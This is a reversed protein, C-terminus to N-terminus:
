KAPSRTVLPHLQLAIEITLRQQPNDLVDGLIEKIRDLRYRMTNYHIFLAEAARVSNQNQELFIRLTKLLETGNERDYSLLPGIADQCFRGLGAPSEALSIVRFLGLDEYHTVTGSPREQFVRGLQLSQEACEYAQRFEALDFAPSSIGISVTYPDNESRVRESVKSLEQVLLGKVESLQDSKLPFFVVLRPGQHWFSAQSELHRIYREALHLSSDINNQEASKVKGLLTGSPPDPKVVIVAFPPNLRSGMEQSLHIAQERAAPQDSLLMELIQNRFRQETESISRTEMMKLAVVTSGHEIAILDTFQLPYPLSGWIIIEGLTMSSVRVPCVIHDVPGDAGVIRMRKVEGVPLAEVLEPQYLENLYSDGTGDDRIFRKQVQAHDVLFGSGLVRRFRDIISVPRQVVQAIAHAIDSYDAGGLVFDIFQRLIRESQQLENAQLNLIKNTLPQIIDIFSVKPPLEILPFALRNAADVMCQPLDEVYSLPTIALGALGKEALCPVLTEIAAADDRLPYMTTVLLEGARVWDLIDPVEMVNVSEVVNDLGQKGAVVRSKRLPEVMTLAERLTLPM